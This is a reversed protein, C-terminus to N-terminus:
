SLCFRTLLSRYKKVSIFYICWHIEGVSVDQQSYYSIGKVEAPSCQTKGAMWVSSILISQHDFATIKGSTSRQINDKKSGGNWPRIRRGPPPSGYEVCLSTSMSPQIPLKYEKPLKARRDRFYSTELKLNYSANVLFRFLRKIQKLAPRSAGRLVVTCGLHSPCGEIMVYTVTVGRKAIGCKIAESGDHVSDGLRSAAFFAQRHHNSLKSSSLHSDVSEKDNFSEIFPQIEDAYNLKTQRLERSESDNRNNWIDDDRFSVLRFRRCKGEIIM